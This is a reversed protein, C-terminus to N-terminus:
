YPWFSPKNPSYKFNCDYCYNQRVIFVHAEGEWYNRVIHFISEDPRGDKYIMVIDECEPPFDQFKLTFDAKSFSATKVNVSSAEFYGLVPNYSDCACINGKSNAPISNYLGGNVQSSAQINKWFEYSELSVSYMSLEIFYEYNLKIEEVTITSTTLGFFEKKDQRSGDFILVNKSRGYPYCIKSPNSTKPEYYPNRWEWSENYEWRLYNSQNTPDQANMQIKVASIKNGDALLLDDEIGYISEISVEPRITEPNSEYKIGSSTQIEIWYSTGVKGQFSPNQTHYIGPATEIFTDMNGKDDHITIIADREPNISDAKILDVTKFLRVEYPGPQTTIKGDVVLISTGSDDELYFKETCSTFLFLVIWYWYFIFKLFPM